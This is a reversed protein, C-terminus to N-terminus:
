SPVILEPCIKISFTMKYSFCQLVYLIWLDPLVLISNVRILINCKIVDKLFAAYPFPFKVMIAEILCLHM